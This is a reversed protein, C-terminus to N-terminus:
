LNAPTIIRGLMDDMTSGTFSEDANGMM